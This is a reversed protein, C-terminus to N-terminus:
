RENWAVEFQHLELMFRRTRESPAVGTQEKEAHLFRQRLNIFMVVDDHDVARRLEAEQRHGGQRRRSANEHRYM